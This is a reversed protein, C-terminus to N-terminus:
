PYVVFKFGLLVMQVYLIVFLGYDGTSVILHFINNYTHNFKKIITNHSQGKLM